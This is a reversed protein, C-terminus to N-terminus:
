DSLKAAQREARQLYKNAQRWHIAVTYPINSQLFTETSTPRSDTSTLASVHVVSPSYIKQWWYAGDRYSDFANRIATKLRADRLSPLVSEVEATAERLHADFIEFSVRALKRNEEFERLSRYVFVDADLRKLVAIARAAVLRDSETDTGLLTTPHNVHARPQAQVCAYTALVFVLLALPRHMQLALQYSADRELCVACTSFSAGSRNAKCPKYLRLIM